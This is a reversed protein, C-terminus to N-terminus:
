EEIHMLIIIGVTGCFALGTFTLLFAEFSGTEAARYGFYAFQGLGVTKLIDAFYKIQEDNM